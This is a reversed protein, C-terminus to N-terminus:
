SRESSLKHLTFDLAFDSQAEPSAFSKLLRESAAADGAGAWSPKPCDPFGSCGTGATDDRQERVATADLGDSGSPESFLAEEAGM